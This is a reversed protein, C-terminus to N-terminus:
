SGIEKVRELCEMAEEERKLFLLMHAKAKLTEVSNPDIELAREFCELAERYKEEYNQFRKAVKSDKGGIDENEIATLYIAEQFTGMDFLLGARWSWFEAKRYNPNLEIVKNCCEIAEEIEQSKMHALGEEFWEDATKIGEEM